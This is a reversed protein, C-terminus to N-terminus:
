SRGAMVNWLARHSLWILSCMQLRQFVKWFYRACHCDSADSMTEDKSEDVEKIRKAELHVNLQWDWGLSASRAFNFAFHTGCVTIQPICTFYFMIAYFWSYIPAGSSKSISHPCRIEFHKSLTLHCKTLYFHQFVAWLSAMWCLPLGFTFGGIMSFTDQFLSMFSCSSIGPSIATNAVLPSLALVFLFSFAGPESAKFEHVTSMNGNNLEDAM